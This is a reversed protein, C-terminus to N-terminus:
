RRARQSRPHTMDGLWASCESLGRPRVGVRDSRNLRPNDRVPASRAYKFVPKSLSMAGDISSSAGVNAEM